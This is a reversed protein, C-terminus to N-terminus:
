YMMGYLDSDIDGGKTMAEIQDRLQTMRTQLQMVKVALLKDNERLQNAANVAMVGIIIGVVILVIILLMMLLYLETKRTTKHKGETENSGNSDYGSDVNAEPEDNRINQSQMPYVRNVNPTYLCVAEHRNSESIDFIEISTESM